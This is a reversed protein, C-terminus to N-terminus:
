TFIKIKQNNQFDNTVMMYILETFDIRPAWRLKTRAKHINARLEMEHPRFLEKDVVVYKKWDLDVIGFAIDLFERVSHTEGTGIVFDEPVNQQLMLWMAEVYDGAFGWDRVADLNGLKLEKIMGNKIETVAKSIKRTLFVLDRRPSEHNFLIGTCAFVREQERFMRVLETGAVKTIGYLSTPHFPTKESQPIDSGGAFVRSSSAFFFRSKPAESKIVSLFYYTSNLNTQVISEYNELTNEVEHLCALHYIEDPQIQAVLQRISEYEDINTFHITIKEKIGNIRWLNADGGEKERKAIGHVEYKKSLLLEALYSGDQGAVGTILAKKM